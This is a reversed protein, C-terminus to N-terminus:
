SKWAMRVKREVVGARRAVRMVVERDPTAMGVVTDKREGPLVFEEGPRPALDLTSFLRIAVTIAMNTALFRGPCVTGFLGFVRLKRQAEPDLKGDKLFRGPRFQDADDGWIEPDFHHPRLPALAYSGKPLFYTDALTTDERVYRGALFTGHFRLVELWTAHLLPCTQSIESLDMTGDKDDSGALAIDIERRVSDLLHQDHLIHYVYWTTASMINPGLGAILLLQYDTWGEAPAGHSQCLRRIRNLFGDDSKEDQPEQPSLQTLRERVIRRSELLSKDIFWTAPNNLARVNLLFHRLHSLFSEDHFPGDNAGWIVKGVAGVLCKFIWDEINIDQTSIQKLDAQIYGDVTEAYYRLRVGPIFEERFMRSAHKGVQRSAEDAERLLTSSLKGFGLSKQFMDLALPNLGVNKLKPLYKALEPQILTVKATGIWITFIPLKTSQCLQTFYSSGEKVYHLLHGLVPIQQSVSVPTILYDHGIASGKQPNAAKARILCLVALLILTFPLYGPLALLIVSM